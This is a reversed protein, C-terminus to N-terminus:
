RTFDHVLSPRDAANMMWPLFSVAGSGGHEYHSTEDTEIYRYENAAAAAPFLCNM